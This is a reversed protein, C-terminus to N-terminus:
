PIPPNITGGRFQEANDQTPDNIRSEPEGSIDSEPGTDDEPDEGPEEDPVLAQGSFLANRM